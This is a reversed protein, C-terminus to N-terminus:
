NYEPYKISVFICLFHMKTWNTRESNVNEQIYLQPESLAPKCKCDRGGGFDGM